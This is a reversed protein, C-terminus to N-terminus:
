ARRRAAPKEIAEVLLYVGFEAKNDKAPKAFEGQLENVLTRRWTAEADGYNILHAVFFTLGKNM